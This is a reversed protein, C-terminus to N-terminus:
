ILQFNDTCYGLSHLTNQIGTLLEVTNWGLKQVSELLIPWTLDNQFDVATVYSDFQLKLTNELCNLM